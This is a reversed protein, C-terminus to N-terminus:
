NRDQDKMMQVVNKSYELMMQLENLCEEKVENLEEVLKQNNSELITLKEDKDICLKHLEDKEKYLDVIHDQLGEIQLNLISCENKSM